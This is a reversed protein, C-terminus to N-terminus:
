DTLGVKIEDIAEADSASVVIAKEDEAVGGFERDDDEFGLIEGSGTHEPM